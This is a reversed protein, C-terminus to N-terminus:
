LDVKDGRNHSRFPGDTLEWNRDRKHNYHHCSLNYTTACSILPLLRNKTAGRDALDVADYGRMATRTEYAQTREPKLHQRLQEQPDTGGVTQM